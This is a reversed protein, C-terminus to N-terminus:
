NLSELFFQQLTFSGTSVTQTFFLDIQQAATTDINNPITPPDQNWPLVAPAVGKPASGAFGAVCECTWVGQGYFNGSSGVARATLWIDLLWGVTTHAAATDLAIALSDWIVTGGMRVDFRATGPTTIVTSIIGSAQIHLGKGVTDVFNAPLTFKAQAPLASAAAASTLTSGVGQATVLTQRWSQLPM